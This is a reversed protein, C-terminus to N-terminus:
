IGRKFAIYKDVLYSFAYKAPSIVHDQTSVYDKQYGGFGKKFLTLGDWVKPTRGPRYIGYFNYEKCGRRKAEKIAEWQMLYPVPHKTHVSAGQHYFATSKTFIVMSGAQYELSDSEALEPPVKGFFFLANNTRHFSEFEKTIFSQSFPTFKERTFTETYVKWFDEICKKDTRPTITIGDKIAKKILYRTTKRMNKLIDDESQTLDLAWTTEAHMYIPATRFGLDKYYSQNEATDPIMPAVRIFAFGEEQAIKKLHELLAEYAKKQKAGELSFLPGHPIFLFNGRKSRIKIVLAIGCLIEKDYMGLRLISYTLSQQFEGWEWSQHFSPSSVDNFYTSWEGESTIEQIKM